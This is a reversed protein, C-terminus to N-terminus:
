TAEQGYMSVDMYMSAVCTCVQSVTQVTRLCGMHHLNAPSYAQARGQHPTLPLMQPPLTMWGAQRCAVSLLMPWTMGRCTQVAPLEVQSHKGLLSVWAMGSCSQLSLLQTLSRSGWQFRTMCSRPQHRCKYCLQPHSYLLFHGHQKRRSSHQPFPWKVRSVVPCPQSPTQMISHLHQGITSTVHILSCLQQSHLSKSTLSLSSSSMCQQAASWQLLASCLLIQLTPVHGRCRVWMATLSSTMRPRHLNAPLSLLSGRNCPQSANSRTQVTMVLAQVFGSPEPLM